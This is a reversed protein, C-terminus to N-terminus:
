ASPAVAEPELDLERAPRPAHAVPVLRPSSGSGSTARAATPSQEADKATASLPGDPVPLVRAVAGGRASPLPRVSGAPQTRAPDATVPSGTPPATPSSAASAPAAAATGPARRAGAVETGPQAIGLARLVRAYGQRARQAAAAEGSLTLSRVLVRWADDRFEDLEIARVAAAAAQRNRGEGLEARALASAAEAVALRVRERQGVVWESSGEDVLLDARYRDVAARWAQTASALEGRAAERRAERLGEDLAILDCTDGVDLRLLYSEEVRVLVDRGLMPHADDLARRVASVSVHLNHIAATPRLDPWLALALRERHVPHGSEVALMRLMSRARPRLVTLDVAAGDVLLALEGLCRVELAPRRDNAGSGAAAGGRGGTRATGGLPSAGPASPSSPTTAEEAPWSGSSGSPESPEPLPSGSLPSAAAGSAATVTPETAGARAQGRARERSAADPVVAIGAPSPAGAVSPVEATPGPGGVAPAASGASSGSGATSAAGSGASSGSGAGRGADRAAARAAGLRCWAEIVPTDRAAWDAALALWSPADDEGRRAAIATVVTAIVVGGWPDEVDRAWQVLGAIQRQADDAGEAAVVVAHALRQLWTLGLRHAARLVSDAGDAVTEIRADPDVLSETLAAALLTGPAEDEDDLVAALAARAEPVRGALGHLLASVLGCEAPGSPVRGQRLGCQLARAWSGIADLQAVPITADDPASCGGRSSGHETGDPSWVAVLDRVAAPVAAGLLPRLEHDDAGEGEGAPADPRDVQELLRAAPALAGDAVAETLTAFASLRQPVLERVAPDTRLVGSVSTWLDTGAHAVRVVDAPREARAWLGITSATEGEGELVSAARSWWARAQAPGLDRALRAGLYRRLPMPIRYGAPFERLPVVSRHAVNRLVDASDSVELLADLRPPTLVDFAAGWMLLRREQATLGALLVHEAYDALYWPAGRLGRVARRRDAPLMGQTARCFLDVAAPWGDTAAALRHVDDARLPADFGERAARDVEYPRLALDEVDLVGALPADYRAIMSPPLARVAVVVQVGPPVAAALRGFWGDADAPERLRHADDLTVLTPRRLAALTAAAESATVPSSVGGPTTHWVAGLPTARGALVPRDDTAALHSLLTSKGWGHGAVVLVVGSPM